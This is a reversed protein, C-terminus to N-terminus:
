FPWLAPLKLAQLLLAVHPSGTPDHERILARHKAWQLSRLDRSFSPLLCLFVSHILSPTFGWFGPGCVLDPWLSPDSPTGAQARSPSM